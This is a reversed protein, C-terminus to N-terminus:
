NLKNKTFCKNKTIWPMTVFSNNSNRNLQKFLFIFYLSLAFFLNFLDTYFFLISFDQVCAPWTKFHLGLFNIRHVTDLDIVNNQNWEWSFASLTIEGRRDYGDYISCVPLFPTTHYKKEMFSSYCFTLFLFKM